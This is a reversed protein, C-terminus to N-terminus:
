VRPYFAEDIHLIKTGYSNHVISIIDFQAEVDLDNSVIYHHACKIIQNQKHRTVSKWPPGAAETKRTKVEVFNIKGPTEYIIDIENRNYRYNTEIITLGKKILYQRALQEGFDGLEKTTM